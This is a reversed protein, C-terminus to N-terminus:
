EYNCKFDKLIRITRSKGEEYTIFGLRKLSKLHVNITAPSRKGTISCLERMSPSYKHENIYQKLAKFVEYQSKSM